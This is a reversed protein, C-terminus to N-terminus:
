QAGKSASIAWSEVVASVFAWAYDRDCVAAKRERQAIEVLTELIANSM